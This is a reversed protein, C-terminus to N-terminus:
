SAARLRRVEGTATPEADTQAALWAELRDYPLPRSFLFGQGVDCGMDALLSLTRESEVGEAVVRLEFHRALDVIARVIALEGPDTAMGQVFSRDIKVEDVPLRRLYPLSSYGSGFDDVALRVGITDLRRLIPLQRDTDGVPSDEKIELTLLDPDIGYEDLLAAVQDPFDADVLSKTSLNVSVPMTRGTQAWEKARRLAERLVFETLRGLQGTHEAIAVFEEPAVPGHLPHEWRALCEVGVLQRNHLSVKPQYYLDLDGHDLARRLDSALGVRRVPTSELSQDFVQLPPTQGKAARSAVDAQQLLSEPDSGHDPHVSIGAASDIDIRLSGIEMPRRLSDRLTAALAQAADVTEMRLTAAFKDGGVRGVYAASPSLERLRTAFEVLVKDGAAHGLSENIDSLSDIDFVLVAVVDGTATIKVAHDLASLMRRRNPLGTLSDHNADFRLRDVLRSNEVTVSTQAAVTELLKIDSDTFTLTRMLHGAVELTGIVTGGSRLPAVIVDKPGAERLADRLTADGTRSSIAVTKGSAVARDRVARPTPSLDLLGRDDARASLLSEPYRGQPALWLTAFEAHLLTRVRTLLVDALTGDYTHEAVANTLEYLEALNKHQRLFQSYARYVAAVVVGLVVLLVLAWRSQNLMILVVVGVTSNVLCAVISSVAGLLLDQGPIRGQVLTIVGLVAMLTVLVDATVAIILVLWSRPTVEAPLGFRAVILCAVATGAGINALNFIQKVLDGRRIVTFVAAALLRVVFVSLPSMYQLALLLPVETVSMLVAHRRVEFQIQTAEAAVFVVFFVAFTPLSSLGKNDIHAAEAICVIALVALPVTVFWALQPSRQARSAASPM